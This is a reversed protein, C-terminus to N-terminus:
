KPHAERLCYQCAGRNLISTNRTGASIIEPLNYNNLLRFYSLMSSINGYCPVLCYDLLLGNLVYTYSCEREIWSREYFQVTRFALILVISYRIVNM